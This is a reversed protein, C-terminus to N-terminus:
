KVAVGASDYVVRKLENGLTDSFVWEGVPKGHRHQGKYYTVSNGYFVEVPGEEVGNVYHTRSRLIGNPFRSVWLGHRKGDRLMGEMEGGGAIPIVQRGDVTGEKSAVREAKINDNVPKKAEGEWCAVLLLATTTFLTASKMM